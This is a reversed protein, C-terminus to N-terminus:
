LLSLADSSLRCIDSSLVIPLFAQLLAPLLAKLCSKADHITDPM